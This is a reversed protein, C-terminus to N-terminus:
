GAKGSVARLGGTLARTIAQMLAVVGGSNYLLAGLLAAVTALTVVQVIATM